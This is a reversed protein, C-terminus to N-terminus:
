FGIRWSFYGYSTYVLVYTQSHSEQSFWIMYPIHYVMEGSKLYDKSSMIMGSDKKKLSFKGLKLIVVKKRLWKLHSYFITYSHLM